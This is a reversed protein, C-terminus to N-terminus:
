GRDSWSPHRRLRQRAEREEQERRDMERGWNRLSLTLWGWAFGIVLTIFFRTDSNM